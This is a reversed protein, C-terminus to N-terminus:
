LDLYRTTFRESWESLEDYDGATEMLSELSLERVSDQPEVLQAQVGDLADTAGRDDAPAIVVVHGSAYDQEHRTAIVHGTHFGVSTLADARM